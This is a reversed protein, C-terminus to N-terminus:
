TVHGLGGKKRIETSIEEKEATNLLNMATAM